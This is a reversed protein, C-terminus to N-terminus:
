IGRGDMCVEVLYYLAAAIRRPWVTIEWWPIYLPSYEWTSIGGLYLAVYIECYLSVM